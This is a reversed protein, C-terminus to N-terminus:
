REESPAPMQQERVTSVPAARVARGFGFQFEYSSLLGAPRLRLTVILAIGLVAASIGTAAKIHLGAVDVGNEVRRMAENLATILSAGVLAGTISNVGGIIAMTLVVVALALTFSAPSFATILM